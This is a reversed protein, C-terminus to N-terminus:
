KNFWCLVILCILERRKFHKSLQIMINKFPLNGNPMMFDQEIVKLSNSFHRLLNRIM